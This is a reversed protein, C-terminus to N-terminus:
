SFHKSSVIEVHRKKAKEKYEDIKRLAMKRLECFSCM